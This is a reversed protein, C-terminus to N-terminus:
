AGVGASYVDYAALPRQLPESVRPIPTAARQIERVSPAIALVPLPLLAGREREFRLAPLEGTTRHRRVDAVTAVWHAAATNVGELTLTQGQQVLTAAYPAFFSRRLYGIAREVKGKTKARYPRCLRPTFGYDRALTWLGPHFRHKAAGYANRQLVVTRMNDYLVEHPVGGFAEFAAVQCDRLAEFALTDVFRVFLRRSFGLAAVFAYILLGGFRFEAYDVQMQRGPETEFRVLPEAPAKPKLAAVRARVQSECGDYGRERLERCLVSAELRVDVALRERLYAEFADLKSPRAPRPGYRQPKGDRHYKRVTNRSVGLERAMERVGRGQKSLVQITVAEELTLM